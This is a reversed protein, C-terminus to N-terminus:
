FSLVLAGNHISITVRNIYSGKLNLILGEFHHVSIWVFLSVSIVVKYIYTFIICKETHNTNTKLLRRFVIMLGLDETGGGGGWHLRMNGLLSTGGGASYM